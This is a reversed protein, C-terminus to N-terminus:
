SYNFSHNGTNPLPSFGGEDTQRPNWGRVQLLLNDLNQRVKKVAYKAACDLVRTTGLINFSHHDEQSLRPDHMIGMHIVAKVPYRRFVDDTKKKRLDIPFHDVDKPRGVFPRRDIGVVHAEKHLLKTVMRGLNGSIGTVVVVPRGSSM